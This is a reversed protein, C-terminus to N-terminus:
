TPKRAENIEHRSAFGSNWLTMAIVEVWWLGPVYLLEPYRGAPIIAEGLSKVPLIGSAEFRAEWDKDASM